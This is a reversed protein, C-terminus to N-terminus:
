DRRSPFAPPEGWARRDTYSPNEGSTDLKDFWLPLSRIQGSARIRSPYGSPGPAMPRAKWKWSGEIGADWQSM